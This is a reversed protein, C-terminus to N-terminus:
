SLPSGRGGFSHVLSLIIENSLYRECSMPVFFRDSRKPYGAMERKGRNVAEPYGPICVKIYAAPHLTLPPLTDLSAFDAFFVTRRLQEIKQRFSIALLSLAARGSITSARMAETEGRREGRYASVSKAYRFSGAAM